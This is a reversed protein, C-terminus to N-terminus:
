QDQHARHSELRELLAHFKDSYYLPQTERPNQPSTENRGYALGAVTLSKFTKTEGNGGTREMAELIGMDILALNAVKASLHSGHEKLLSTLARVLPEDVYGPLFKSEIGESEAIAALMRNTSTDSMRLMSRAARAIQLKPGLTASKRVRPPNIVVAPGDYRGTVAADFTRIVDLHFKASAWMAYAYVLEKVVYTGGYRGAQTKIPVCEPNETILIEALEKTAQLSLWENPRIDKEIGSAVAAKHLDNISYRGDPDQHIELDAIRVSPTLSTSM